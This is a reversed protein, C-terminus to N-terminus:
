KQQKFEEKEGVNCMLWMGRFGEEAKLKAGQLKLKNGEAMEWAEERVLCDRNKLKM